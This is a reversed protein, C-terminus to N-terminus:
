AIITVMPGYYKRFSVLCMFTYMYMSQEHVAMVVDNNFHSPISHCNSNEVSVNPFKRKVDQVTRFGIWQTCLSIKVPYICFSYSGIM